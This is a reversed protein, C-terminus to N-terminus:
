VWPFWTIRQLVSRLSELKGQVNKSKTMNWSSNGLLVCEFCLLTKIKASLQSWPICVDIGVEATFFKEEKLDHYSLFYISWAALPICLCTVTFHHPKIQEMLTLSFTFPLWCKLEKSQIGNSVYFRVLWICALKELEFYFLWIWILGNQPILLSMCTCSAWIKHFYFLIISSLFVNFNLCSREGLIQWNLFDKFNTFCLLNLHRSTM